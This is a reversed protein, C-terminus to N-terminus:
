SPSKRSVIFTKRSTYAAGGLIFQCAFTAFCVDDQRQFRLM